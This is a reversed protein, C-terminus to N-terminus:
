KPRVIKHTNNKEEEEEEEEDDNKKENKKHIREICSKVCMFFVFPKQKEFETRFLGFAINKYIHVCVSITHVLYM